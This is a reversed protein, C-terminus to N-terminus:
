PHTGMLLCMGEMDVLGINKVEVDTSALQEICKTVLGALGGCDIALNMVEKVPEAIVPAVEGLEGDYAVVVGRTSDDVVCGCCSIRGHQKWYRPFGSYPTPVCIKLVKNACEIDLLQKNKLYQLLCKKINHYGKKQETTCNNKYCPVIIKQEVICKNNIVAGM